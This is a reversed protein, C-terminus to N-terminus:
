TIKAKFIPWLGSNEIRILCFLMFIISMSNNKDVFHLGLIEQFQRSGFIFINTKTLNKLLIHAVM